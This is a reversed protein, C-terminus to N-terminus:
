ASRAVARPSSTTSTEFGSSIAHGPWGERTEDFEPIEVWEVGDLDFNPENRQVAREEKELKTPAPGEHWELLRWCGEATSEIKRILGAAPAPDFGKEEFDQLPPLLRDVLEMVRARHEAEEVEARERINRTLVAAEHRDGRELKWSLFAARRIMCEEIENRSGLDRIWADAWEALKGADEEPLVILEEATLGHKLANQRPREKGEQTEPGRSKMGNRRNAEMQKESAMIVVGPHNISL